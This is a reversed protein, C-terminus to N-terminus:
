PPGVTRADLHPQEATLPVRPGGLDHLDLLAVGVCTGCPKAHQCSVCESGRLQGGPDITARGTVEVVKPRHALSSQDSRGGQPHENGVSGEALRRRRPHEFAVDVLALPLPGDSVLGSQLNLARSAIAATRSARNPAARYFVSVLQRGGTAHSRPLQRMLRTDGLVNVDILGPVFATELM